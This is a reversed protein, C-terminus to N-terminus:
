MLNAVPEPAEKAEKAQRAEWLKLCKHCKPEDVQKGTLFLFETSQSAFHWGGAASWVKIAFSWTTKAIWHKPRNKWGRGKTVVWLDRPKNFASAFSQDQADPLQPAPTGPNVPAQITPTMPAPTLPAVMMPTGPMCQPIDVVKKKCHKKPTNCCWVARGDESFFSNKYPCDRGSM